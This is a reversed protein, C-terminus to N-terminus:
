RPTVTRGNVDADAPRLRRPGTADADEKMPRWPKGPDPRSGDEDGM